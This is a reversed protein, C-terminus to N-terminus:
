FVFKFDHSNTMHHLIPELFHIQFLSFLFCLEL